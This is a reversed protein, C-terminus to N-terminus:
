PPGNGHQQAQMQGSLQQALLADQDSQSLNNSNNTNSNNNANPNGNMGFLSGFASQMVSATSSMMNSPPLNVLPQANNFSQQQQAINAHPNVNKPPALKSVDGGFAFFRDIATNLDWSTAKLFATAVSTEASTM